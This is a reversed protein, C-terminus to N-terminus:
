RLKGISLILKAMTLCHALLCSSYWNFQVFDVFGSGTPLPRIFEHNTAALPVLAVMGRQLRAIGHEGFTSVTRAEPVGAWEWSPLLLDLDTCLWAEPSNLEHASGADRGDSTETGPAYRVPYQPYWHLLELISQQSLNRLLYHTTNDM